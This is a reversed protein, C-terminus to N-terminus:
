LLPLTPDPSTTLALTLTLVLTLTVSLMTVREFSASPPGTRQALGCRVTVHEHSALLLRAARVQPPLPPPPPPPHSCSHPRPHSCPHSRPHPQLHPNLSFTLSPPYRVMGEDVEVCTIRSAPLAEAFKLTSWGPGCGLELLAAGDRLGHGRM